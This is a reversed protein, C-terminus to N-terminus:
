RHVTWVIDRPEGYKAAPLGGNDKLDEDLSYLIFGNGERRYVFDEGTFPDKELPWKLKARLEDLSQPYTGYKDHYALLALFIRSGVIEARSRCYGTFINTHVGIHASAVIAYFPIGKEGIGRSKFERYTMDVCDIMQTMCHVYVTQDKISFVKVWILGKPDKWLPRPNHGPGAIKRYWRKFDTRTATLGDSTYARQAQLMNVYMQRVDLRGFTEYLDRAQAENITVKEASKKLASSAIYTNAKSYYAILSNEKSPRHGMQLQLKIFRVAGGADGQGASVRAKYGLIYALNRLKAEPTNRYDGRSMPPFLCQPMSAAKETLGIAREYPKLLEAARALSAPDGKKLAKMIEGVNDSKPLARFAQEYILAANQSDPVQPQPIDAMSLPEGRAKIAEMESALQRGWVVRLVGLTIGALVALVLVGKGLTKLM